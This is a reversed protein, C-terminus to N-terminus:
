NKNLRYNIGIALNLLTNQPHDRVFWDSYNNHNTLYVGGNLTFRLKGKGYNIFFNPQLTLIHYVESSESNYEQHIDTTKLEFPYHMYSIRTSVGYRIKSNYVGFNYQLFFTKHSDKNDYLFTKEYNSYKNNKASGTGFGVYISNSLRTATKYYGIGVDLYKYEYQKPFYEMTIGSWRLREKESQDFYDYSFHGSTILAFNNTISYSLNQYISSTTAGIEIEGEGRKVFVPSNIRPPINMSSCGSLIIALFYLNFNYTYRFFSKLVMIGFLSM